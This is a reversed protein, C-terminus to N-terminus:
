SGLGFFNAYDFTVETKYEHQCEDCVNDYPKLGATSAIEALKKKDIKGLFRNEGEVM